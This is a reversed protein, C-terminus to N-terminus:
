SDLFMDYQIFVATIKKLKGCFKGWMKERMKEWTNTGVNSFHISRVDLFIWKRTVEWNITSSTRPCHQTARSAVAKRKINKHFLWFSAFNSFRLQKILPFLNFRLFITWLLEQFLNQGFSFVCFTRQLFPFHPFFWKESLLFLFCIFLTSSHPFSM